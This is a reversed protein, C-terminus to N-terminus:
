DRGFPTPQPPQHLKPPSQWPPAPALSGWFPHVLLQEWAPRDLPDKALLERALAVFDRLEGSDQRAAGVVDLAGLFDEAGLMARVTSQARRAEQLLVLKSLLPAKEYPATTRSPTAASPAAANM